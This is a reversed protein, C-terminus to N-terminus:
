IDECYGASAEDKKGGSGPLRPFEEEKGVDPLVQEKVRGDVLQRGGYGIGNPGALGGERRPKFKIRHNGHYIKSMDHTGYNDLLAKATPNPPPPIYSPTPSLARPERSAQPVVHARVPLRQLQGHVLSRHMATRPTLSLNPPPHGPYVTSYYHGTPTSPTYTYNNAFLNLPTHTQVTTSFTDLTSEFTRAQPPTDYPQPPIIYEAASEQRWNSTESEPDSLSAHSPQYPHRSSITGASARYAHPQSDESPVSEEVVLSGSPEEVVVPANHEIRNGNEDMTCPQWQVPNIDPDLEESELSACDTCLEIGNYGLCFLHIQDVPCQLGCHCTDIYQKHDCGENEAFLTICM